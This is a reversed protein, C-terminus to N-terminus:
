CEDCDLRPLVIGRQALEYGYSMNIDYEDLDIKEPINNGREVDNDNRVFYEM